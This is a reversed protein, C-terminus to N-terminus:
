SHTGQREQSRLGAAPAGGTGIRAEAGALLWSGYAASFTHQLKAGLCRGHATEHLKIIQTQEQIQHRGRHLGQLIARPLEQSKAPKRKLANGRQGM